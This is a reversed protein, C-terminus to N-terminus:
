VHFDHFIKLSLTPVRYIFGDQRNSFNNKFCASSTTQYCLNSTAGQLLVSTSALLIGPGASECVHRIGCPRTMLVLLSDKFYSTDYTTYFFDVVGRPLFFCTTSSSTFSSFAAFCSSSLAPSSAGLVSSCGATSVSSVVSCGLASTFSAASSVAGTSIFSSSGAGVCDSGELLVSTCQM